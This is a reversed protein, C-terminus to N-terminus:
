KEWLVFSANGTCCASKIMNEFNFGEYKSVIGYVRDWGSSGQPISCGKEKGMLLLWIDPLFPGEDTNVIVIKEIKDWDIQETPREPHTVTVSKETIEVEYYDEPQKKGM